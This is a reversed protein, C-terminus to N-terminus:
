HLYWILVFKLQTILQPRFLRVFCPITYFTAVQLLTLTHPNPQAFFFPSKFFFFYASPPEVHFGANRQAQARVLCISVCRHSSFQCFSARGVSFFVFLFWFECEGEMWMRFLFLHMGSFRGVDALVVTSLILFCSCPHRPPQNSMAIRKTSESDLLGTGRASCMRVWECVAAYKNWQRQEIVCYKCFM